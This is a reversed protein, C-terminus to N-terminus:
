ELLKHLLDVFDSFNCSSNELIEEDPGTPFHAIELSFFLQSSLKALLYFFVFFDKVSSLNSVKRPPIGIENEM